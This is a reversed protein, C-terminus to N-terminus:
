RHRLDLKTNQCHSIQPRPRQEELALVRYFSTELDVIIRKVMIRSVRSNVANRGELWPTSSGPDSVKKDCDTCKSNAQSNVNSGTIAMPIFNHRKKFCRSYTKILAVMVLSDGVPLRANTFSISSHNSPGAALFLVTMTQDSFITVCSTWHLMSDSFGLRSM